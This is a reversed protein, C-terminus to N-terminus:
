SQAFATSSCTMSSSPVYRGVFRGFSGQVAQHAARWPLIEDTFLRINISLTRGHGREVFVENM